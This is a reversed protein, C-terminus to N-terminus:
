IAKNITLAGTQVENSWNGARDRIKISFSTTQSTNTDLIFLGTLVINLEGEIQLTNNPPTLPLIHYEDYNGLRADKVFLSYYDPDETGIDGDGDQYSITLCVRDQFEITSNPTMSLYEIEPIESYKEEKKCSLFLLTSLIIYFLYKM